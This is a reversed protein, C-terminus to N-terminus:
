PAPEEPAATKQPLLIWERLGHAAPREVPKDLTYAGAHPGTLVTLRDGARPAAGALFAATTVLQEVQGYEGLIEVGDTIVVALSDNARLVAEEAFHAFLRTNARDLAAQARAM